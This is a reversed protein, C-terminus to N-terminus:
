VQARARRRLDGLGGDAADGFRGLRLVRRHFRDGARQFVRFAALGALLRLGVEREGQPLPVPALPALSLPRARGGPLVGADGEGPAERWGRGGPSLSEMCLIEMVVSM